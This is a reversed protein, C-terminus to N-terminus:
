RKKKKKIKKNMKWLIQFSKFQEKNYCGLKLSMIVMNDMTHIALIQSGSIAPANVWEDTKQSLELATLNCIEVSTTWGVGLHM